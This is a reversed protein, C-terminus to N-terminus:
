SRLSAFDRSMFLFSSFVDDEDDAEDDDVDRMVVGDDLGTFAAVTSTTLCDCSCNQSSQKSRVKAQMQTVFVFLAACGAASM